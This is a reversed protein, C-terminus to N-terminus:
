AAASQLLPYDTYGKAGPTYFTAADAKALSGGHRFREVLDPNAIFPVGFAVLDATGNGIAANGKDRDYGTNTILTGRYIGRYHPTVDAVMNPIGSVDGAPERLHLYALGYDSLKAIVYDYLARNDSDPPSNWTNSPSLRLGTKGAGVAGVVAEVVEFLFRAREPIGGGYEDSRRNISDRLFQEILYGNAGHIEVGDFGAAMANKAGQAFDAVVQKVEATTLARATVTDKLQGAPTYAKARPNFASPAVPLAGGHFDPHSVAGVHWLQLFIRGGRAHVAETVLKWGEIQAELHIGPTYLYGAGQPSVQSGETVILGASARQAYYEAHLATPALEPNDARDRTMPAMVVRNRLEYNGLKVPTLLAQQNM